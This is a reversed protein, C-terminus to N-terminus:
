VHINLFIKFKIVNMVHEHIYGGEAFESESFLKANWKKSPSPCSKLEFIEFNMKEIKNGIM